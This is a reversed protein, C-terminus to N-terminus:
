ELGFASDSSETENGGARFLSTAGAAAREAMCEVALAGADIYGYKLAYFAISYDTPALYIYDELSEQPKHGEGLAINKTLNLGVLLSELTKGLAQEDGMSAPSIKAYKAVYGPLKGYLSNLVEMYLVHRVASSLDGAGQGGAAGALRDAFEPDDDMATRMAKKAYSRAAELAADSVQMSRQKDM